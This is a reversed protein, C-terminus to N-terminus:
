SAYKAVHIYHDGDRTVQDKYPLVLCYIGKFCFLFSIIQSGYKMIILDNGWLELSFGDMHPKQGKFQHDFCGKRM